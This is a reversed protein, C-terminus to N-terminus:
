DENQAMGKGQKTIVEGKWEGEVPSDTEPIPILNPIKEKLSITEPKSILNCIEKSYECLDLNCVDDDVFTNVSKGNKCVKGIFLSNHEATLVLQLSSIEVKENVILEGEIVKVFGPFTVEAKANNCHPRRQGDYTALKIGKLNIISPGEDIEYIGIVNDIEDKCGRSSSVIEIFYLSIFLIAPKM